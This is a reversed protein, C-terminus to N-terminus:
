RKGSGMRRSKGQPGITEAAKPASAAKEREREKKAEADMNIREVRLFAPAAAAAPAAPEPHLFHRYTSVTAKVLTAGDAPDRGAPELRTLRHHQSRHDGKRDRRAALAAASSSGDSADNLLRRIFDEVPAPGVVDVCIPKKGPGAAGIVRATESAPM